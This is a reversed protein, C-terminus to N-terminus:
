LSLLGEIEAFVQRDGFHRARIASSPCAAVCTGCGKCLAEQIASKKKAEDFVVATYPCIGLCTKCGSCLEEEVVATTAEVEIERRSILSLAKAAAASGQAVADPIDKPGQCAGAIFVGENTTSVPALKPHQELFFGDASRSVLFKRGVAEADFRPEIAPTLVVMDVPIRLLKGLLTDEVQVVAQSDELGEIAAAPGAIAKYEAGGWVQAGKGRIFRVGEEQLRKYFEEYGKGFCRMDIYLNYVTAEHLKEKILHAYKLAYMCCVRSCHRNFNEDRSGTCHLIAV